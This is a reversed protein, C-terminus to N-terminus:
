QPVWDWVEDDCEWYCQLCGCMCCVADLRKTADKRELEELLLSRALQQALRRWRVMLAFLELLPKWGACDFSAVWQNDGRQQMVRALALVQLEAVEDRDEHKGGPQVVVAAVHEM